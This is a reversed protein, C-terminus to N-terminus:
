LVNEQLYNLADKGKWDLSLAREDSQAAVKLMLNSPRVGLVRSIEILRRAERPSPFFNFPKTLSLLTLSYRDQRELFIREAKETARYPDGTFYEDAVSLLLPDNGLLRRIM